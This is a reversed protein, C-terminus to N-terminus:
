GGTWYQFACNFEVISFKLHLLERSISTKADSFMSLSFM